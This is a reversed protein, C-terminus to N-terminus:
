PIPNVRVAFRSTDDDTTFTQAGAQREARIYITASNGALVKDYTTSSGPPPCSSFIHTPPNVGTQGFARAVEPGATEGNVIGSTSLRAILDVRVDAGTGTVICQGEVSPRWDFSQAPIGIPCLTFAANGSPTPEIVAPLYRDGVNRAVIEVGDGTANVVFTRGPTLAGTLDDAELITMTGAPGEPGTRQSANLQYINPATETFSMFDETPDDYELVTNNIATDLQPTDGDDGKVLAPFNGIGGDPVAVAIFMNSSPDWELPVRFKAVDFVLYEKGDIITTNWNIVSM